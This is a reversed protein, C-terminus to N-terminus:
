GATTPTPRLSERARAIVERVQDKLRTVDNMTLGTTEIPELVTVTAHAPNM